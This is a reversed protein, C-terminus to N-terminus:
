ARTTAFIANRMGQWIVEKKVEKKVWDDPTLTYLPRFAHTGWLAARYARWLTNFSWRPSGSWWRTPVPPYQCLGWTRYGALLLLAYVWAVWQVSAVAATPNWCQKDGLGFSAKLERHCVEIEWRQWAWFLLTAIPLPLGYAGQDNLQANVLFPLPKRRYPRGKHTRQKGRVIILFLPCDAAGKRLVPGMVRYQLHRERGRVLVNLKHWKGRQQWLQQPTALRTGYKRPRGRRQARPSPLHYLVRNKASRALVSVGTPLHQWLNLNDYSGDAVMLLRQTSRGAQDLQNRLWQLCTVAAQWEKQPEHAIPKSKETFCPLWRLPLARSYGHEAPMLWSLNFWRQARHIGRKFPPSTPNRLWGAGEIKRGSRPTQTGDGAVVYVENAKIHALTERVLIESAQKFDLRGQSFLRYWASWDTETLGLTMLMQTVTHRAFTLVEGLILAIIRQYIRNQKFLCRQIEILEFLNKLLEQNQPISSM